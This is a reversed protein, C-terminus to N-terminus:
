NDRDDGTAGCPHKICPAGLGTSRNGGVVDFREGPGDAFEPAAGTDDTVYARKCRNM